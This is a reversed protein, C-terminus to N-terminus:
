EKSNRYRHVAMVVAFTGAAAVAIVWPVFSLNTGTPTVAGRSNTYTVTTSDDTLSADSYETSNVEGGSGVAYTTTYGEASYDGETVTVTYGYPIQPVTMTGGDKMSFTYTGDSVKILGTPLTGTLNYPENASSITLTFDFDKNKDGMNGKVEKEVTLSVYKRNTLTANKDDTLSGKTNSEDIKTWNEQDAEEVEYYAGEPLDEVTVSNTGSSDVQLDYEWVKEQSNYVWGEGPSWEDALVPVSFLASFSLISVLIINKKNTVGM